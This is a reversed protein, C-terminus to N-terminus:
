RDHLVIWSYKKIHDDLPELKSHFIKLIEFLDPLDLDFCTESLLLEEHYYLSELWDTKLDSIESCYPNTSATIKALREALSSISIM